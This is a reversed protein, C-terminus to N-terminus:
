TFCVPFTAYFTTYLKPWRKNTVWHGPTIVFILMAKFPKKKRIFVLRYIKHKRKDLSQFCGLVCPLTIPLSHLITLATGISDALWCTKTWVDLWEKVEMWRNSSSPLRRLRFGLTDSHNWLLRGNLTPMTYCSKWGLM